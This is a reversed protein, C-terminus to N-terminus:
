FTTRMLAASGGAPHLSRDKATAPLLFFEGPKFEREGCAVAGDLVTFIACGRGDDARPADLQWREVRFHACEALVASGAPALAPEHDAFNISKLSEAIHLARPKGDLGARNWDFVRYTTDSNQQIEVILCGAGIAHCRGNPIFIADGRRVPIRHLLGEVRGAALAEDFEERTTGRRFGAIIESGPEADLLIWVESKPEGGLEAALAAPPHVQVSMTERADLIKALLPFRPADPVDGFVESRHRTWLEHLTMGAHAGCDVVSQAEPRDVLEWSEGIVAGAPIPKGLETALRRGGWVREMFLPRFTLPHDFAM